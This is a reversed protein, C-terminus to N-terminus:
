GLPTRITGCQRDYQEFMMRFLKLDQLGDVATTKAPKGEVLFAYLAKLEERYGDEWSSVSETKRLVGQDDMEEVVVV